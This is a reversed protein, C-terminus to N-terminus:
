RTERGLIMQRLSGAFLALFAAVIFWMWAPKTPSDGPGGGAPVASPFGGSPDNGGTVVPAPPTPTVDMSPSTITTPTPSTTIPAPSTTIPAPSTTIPAPSTTIPAPSTTISTPTPTVTTLTPTPTPTIPAPSTTIPTPTPSATTETPTPTPSATTETPTPTPSATTETPTPTPSPKVPNCGANWIEQGEASWNLGAFTEESESNEESESKRESESRKASESSEESKLSKEFQSNEESESNKKPKTYTFPPIIDGWDGPEMGEVYVPGTHDGHGNLFENNLEDVSSTSVTISVYPNKTSSTAHCITVKESPTASVSPIVILASVGVAGILGITAAIGWRARHVSPSGSARHGNSSM